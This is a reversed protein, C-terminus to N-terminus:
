FYKKICIIMLSLGSVSIFSGFISLPVSRKFVLSTSIRFQFWLIIVLFIFSFLTYAIRYLRYKEKMLRKLNNKVTIGAFVSHTVCFAIWLVALIVHNLLM